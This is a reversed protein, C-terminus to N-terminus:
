DGAKSRIVAYVKDSIVHEIRCADEEATERDVGLGELFRTLVLHREYLREVRARGEDTFTIVGAGDVAIFGAKKLIGVARSVSSKSYRLEAVIDVSRVTGREKQLLLITELYNEGSEQIKM